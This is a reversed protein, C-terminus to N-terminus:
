EWFILPRAAKRCPGKRDIRIRLVFSGCKISGVIWCWGLLIGRLMTFGIQGLAIVKSCKLIKM